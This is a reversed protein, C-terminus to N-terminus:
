LETLLRPPESRSDTADRRYKRSAGSKKHHSSSSTADDKEKAKKKKKGSKLKSKSSGHTATSGSLSKTFAGQKRLLKERQAQRQKVQLRKKREKEEVQMQQWDTDFAQLEVKGLLSNGDVTTNEPDHLSSDISPNRSSPGDNASSTTSPPSSESYESVSQVSSITTPVDASCRKKPAQVEFSFAEDNESRTNKDENESDSGAEEGAKYFIDSAADDHIVVKETTDSSEEVLGLNVLQLHEVADGAEETLAAKNAKSSPIADDVSAPNVFAVVDAEDNQKKENTVVAQTVPETMHKRELVPQPKFDGNILSFNATEDELVGDSMGSSSANALFATSVAHDAHVDNVM